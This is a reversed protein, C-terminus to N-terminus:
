EKAEGTLEKGFIKIFPFKLDEYNLPKKSKRFKIYDYLEQLTEAVAEKVDEEQFYQHLHAMGEFARLGKDALSKKEMKTEEM